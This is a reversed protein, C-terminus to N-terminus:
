CFGSGSATRGYSAKWSSHSYWGAGAQAGHTFGCKSNISAFDSWLDGSHCTQGNKGYNCGFAVGTNYYAAISRGNYFYGNGCQNALNGQAVNVDDAPTGFGNCNTSDRKNIGDVDRAAIPSARLTENIPAIFTWTTSGDEALDVTYIGHPTDDSPGALTGKAETAPNPLASVFGSAAFFLCVLTTLQVM